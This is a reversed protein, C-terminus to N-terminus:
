GSGQVIGAPVSSESRGGHLEELAALLRERSVPKVLFRDAGAQLARQASVEDDNGSMMIVRCRPLNRAAEQERVWQVTELGNKLPMEMDVLLYEPWRQAMTDMAAQGNAATEVRYPPSPLMRRTVLRILEDDDVLLLERASWGELLVTPADDDPSAAPASAPPESAAPLTLTLTTGDPGTEMRLDGQQTRAMLRASYTGLGTGGSKRSTVYKDFFRGAVEPPVAGPNHVSLGAPDGGHLAISVRGGQGAAEVANKVLNAIISYCLLEEGRVHVARRDQVQLHLAVRNAEAYGRLDVLVRGVVERLDVAQPHLEYTGKEMRFLGLSLNVMELM